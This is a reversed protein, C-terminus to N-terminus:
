DEQFDSGQLLRAGHRIRIIQVEEGQLRYIIRYNGAIVERLSEDEFEPVVRGLRPFARLREASALVQVIIAAAAAAADRAIFRHIEGLDSLADRTWRVQAM